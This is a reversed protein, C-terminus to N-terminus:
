CAGSGGVAMGLRKGAHAVARFLLLGFVFYQSVHACKRVFDHLLELTQEPQMRCCGVAAVAVVRDATHESSFTDTSFAFIILRGRRLVLLWARCTAIM